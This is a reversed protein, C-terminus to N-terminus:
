LKIVRKGRVKGLSKSAAEMELKKLASNISPVQNEHKISIKYQSHPQFWLNTPNKLTSILFLSSSINVCLDVVSTIHILYCVHLKLFENQPICFSAIIEPYHRKDLIRNWLVNMRIHIKKEQRNLLYKFWHSSLMVCAELILLFYSSNRVCSEPNKSASM